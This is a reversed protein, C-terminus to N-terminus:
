TTEVELATLGVNSAMPRRGVLVIRIGGVVILGVPLWVVFVSLNARFRICAYRCM